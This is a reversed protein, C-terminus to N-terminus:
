MNLPNLLCSFDIIISYTNTYESTNTIQHNVVFVQVVEKHHGPLATDGPGTFPQM